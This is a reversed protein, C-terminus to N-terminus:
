SRVKQEEALRAALAALRAARAQHSRALRTEEQAADLLGRVSMEEGAASPNEADPLGRIPRGEVAGPAGEAADPPERHSSGAAGATPPDAMAADAPLRAEDAPGLPADPFPARAARGAQKDAMGPTNDADM